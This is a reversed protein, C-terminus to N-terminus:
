WSTCRVGAAIRTIRPGAFDNQDADGSAFAIRIQIARGRWPALDLRVITPEGGTTGWILDSTWLPSVLAGDVVSVVLRDLGAPNSFATGSWLDWETSLALALDVGVDRGALPVTFAPTTVRGSVPKGPPRSAYTGTTPDVFALAGELATWTVGDGADDDIIALGSTGQAAVDHAFVDREMCCFADHECRGLACRDATCADGDDCATDSACTTCTANPERPGLVCRGGTGSSAPVCRAVRCAPAVPDAPCDLDSACCGGDACARAVVLEDLWVGEHRNDEGDFTDFEFVLRISSGAWPALDLLLPRWAGGTSKGVDLTTAVLWSPGGDGPEARVRLLDPEADLGPGRGRLPEVDAWLWLTAVVPEDAPLAFFTTRTVVQVRNSDQEGDTAPQCAADLAGGYYTRCRANGLYGAGGGAAWRRADVAWGVQDAAQYDTVSMPWTGGDFRHQVIPLAGPCASEPCADCRGSAADCAGLACAAADDACCGPVRALTCRAAICRSEECASAAGDPPCDADVRCCGEIPALVCAERENCRGEWCPPVYGALACTTGASAGVCPPPAVDTAGGAVDGDGPDADGADGEVVGDEGDDDTEDTDGPPADDRTETPSTDPAADRGDAVVEADEDAVEPAGLDFRADDAQRIDAPADATEGCGALALALVVVRAARAHDGVGERSVLPPVKM